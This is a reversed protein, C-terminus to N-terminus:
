RAKMLDRMETHLTVIEKDLDGDTPLLMIEHAHSKLRAATDQREKERGLTRYLGHLVLDFLPRCGDNASASLKEWRPLLDQRQQDPLLSLFELAGLPALAFGAVLQTLANANLSGGGAPMAKIQKIFLPAITESTLDAYERYKKELLLIQGLTIARSLRASETDAQDPERRFYAEGDAAADLSLYVEAAYMDQLLSAIFTGPAFLDHLQRDMGQGDAPEIIAPLFRQRFRDLKARAEETRGLKTLCHYQFLSFDRPGQLSDLIDAAPVAVPEPRPLEREAEEYWRWAKAYDGKLLYYHGVQIIEQTNVPMWDIQGSKLDLIAAPDGRRLGWRLLHSIVSRCAPTFTVWLSLKDERPSWQPFTVRMGSFVSRGPETGDGAAVTVKDRASADAILLLAWPDASAFPLEDPVIYALQKNHPSWGLFRRVPSGNVAPPLPQGQRVLHLSGDEGGRVVGLRLGDKDWHLDLFPQDGEAWVEMERTGLTGRQLFHRGSLHSAFAFRKGDATWAPRTSRLNELLSGFEGTPLENSHPVHWWDAQDARGIWIGDTDRAQKSGILCALQSGDPTWDFVMAEGTHSLIQQSQKSALDYEFLGHQHAKVQDVYDIRDLRPHWRVGLNAAVYGPHDATGEFLAVSQAPVDGDAPEYLWCTYIIDHQFYVNGAPDPDGNLFPFNMKSRGNVSRATTFIVRKGIPSWLPTSTAIVDPGPQFIRTLKGSDKDTLFIGEQGHQFGVSAGDGSWNISRDERVPQGCGALLATFAFLASHVFAQRHILM